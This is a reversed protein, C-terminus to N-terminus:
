AALGRWGARALRRGTLRELIRLPSRSPDRMGEVPLLFTQEFMFQGSLAAHSVVDTQVIWTSGAPFKLQTSAVNTQYWEDAKMRDHILLMIQDYDTRLGRTIGLAHLLYARASWWRSTPPAFRRAVAEFPEGVNWVRQQGEPNVNSFVRLLRRGQNPTSPFADVHLRRDDKRWSSARESAEFPRFSTRAVQLWPTYHALLSRVLMSSQEAYRQLAPRVADAQGSQTAAGRVEGTRADFSVHKSKPHVCAPVLCARESDSVQFALRPLVILGGGELVDTAQVQQSASFATQWRETDIRWVPVGDSPFREGLV